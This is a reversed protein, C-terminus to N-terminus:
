RLMEKHPLNDVNWRRLYESNQRDFLAKIRPAEVHGDCFVVNLKGTHRKSATRSFESAPKLGQSSFNMGLIVDAQVVDGETETFADGVAIMDVPVAVKPEPVSVLWVSGRPRWGGLGLEGGRPEGPLGPANDHGWTSLGLGNYGYSQRWYGPTALGPIEKTYLTPCYLQDKHQGSFPITYWVNGLYPNLKTRWQDPGSIAHESLQDTMTPYAQFDSVYVALGLAIQRLNSKCQVSRASAKARSLAPLLLAALIAIIAIVVLLEILTFGTGRRGKFRLYGRESSKGRATM